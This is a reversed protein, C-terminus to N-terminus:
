KEVVALPWRERTAAVVESELLLRKQLWPSLKSVHDNGPRIFNREAAYRGAAPLFANLRALAAERTPPFDPLPTM